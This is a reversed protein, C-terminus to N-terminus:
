AASSRAAFSEESLEELWRAVITFDATLAIAEGDDGTSPSLRWAEVNYPARIHLEIDILGSHWEIQLDGNSGPVIQPPLAGFPCASGLVSAAFSANSFSVPPACYGDWGPELACLDDLRKMVAPWWSYRPEQILRRSFASPSIVGETTRSFPSASFGASMAHRNM